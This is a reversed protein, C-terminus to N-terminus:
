SLGMTALAKRTVNSATHCIGQIGANKAATVFM